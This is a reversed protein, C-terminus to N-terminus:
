SRRQALGCAELGAAVSGRLSIRAHPHPRANPLDETHTTRHLRAHTRSRDIRAAATHDPPDAPAVGGATAPLRPMAPRVASRKAEFPLVTIPTTAVFPPSVLSPAFTTARM